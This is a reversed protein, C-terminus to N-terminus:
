AFRRTSTAADELVKFSAAYKVRNKNFNAYQQFLANCATFPLFFNSLSSFLSPSRSLSPYPSFKGVILSRRKLIFGIFLM